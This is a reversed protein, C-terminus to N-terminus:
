EKGIETIGMCEEIRAFEKMMREDAKEAEELRAKREAQEKKIKLDGPTGFMPRAFNSRGNDKTLDKYTLRRGVMGQALLEMQELTDKPRDNHRGAFEIAYRIVHKPSVKVFSPLGRKFASWFSELGNNHANGIVFKNASHNVAVHERDMGKYGSAEDTYVTSGKATFANVLGQLSERDRSDIQRVVIKGTERSKAGAIIEKGKFGTGGGRAYFAKKQKPNMKGVKGGVATEDIEVEGTLGGEEILGECMAAYSERIRHLMFWATKQTVGIERYIMMSPNSRLDKTELYLVKAWHKLSIKSNEMLTDTKVSFHKRCDKCRFPQPKRNVIVKVRTSGCHPCFANEKSGWRAKIFWNEAQRETRFMEHMQDSTIGVRTHRGPANHAM